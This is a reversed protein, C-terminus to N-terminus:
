SSHDGHSGLLIGGDVSSTKGTHGAGENKSATKRQLSWQISRQRRLQDSEPNEERALRNSNTRTTARASTGGITTESGRLPQHSPPRLNRSRVLDKGRDRVGVGQGVDGLTLDAELSQGK